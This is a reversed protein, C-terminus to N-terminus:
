VVLQAFQPPTGCAANDPGTMEGVGMLDSRVDWISSLNVERPLATVPHCAQQESLVVARKLKM